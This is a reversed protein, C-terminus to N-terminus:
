LLVLALDRAVVRQGPVRVLGVLLVAPVTPGVVVQGAFLAVDVLLVRGTGLGVEGAGVAVVRRVLRVAAGARSEVPAAFEVPVSEM